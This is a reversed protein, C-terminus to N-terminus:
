SRSALRLFDPDAPDLHTFGDIRGFARDASALARVREDGLATAALVADFAGLIDIQRFLQLGTLLEDPGPRLFPAFVGVLAVAREVAESRGRRRARVHAFEQIVEITTTANVQGSGIMGMLRDCPARLPHEGGLAYLLITTDVVIM